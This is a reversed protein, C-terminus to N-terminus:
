RRRAPRVPTFIRLRASSLRARLPRPLGGARRRKSGLSWWVSASTVAAPMRWSASVSGRAKLGSPRVGSIARV